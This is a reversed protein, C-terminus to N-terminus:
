AGAARRMRDRVAGWAEGEPMREMVLHTAGCGELRHLAAYLERAVGAEHNPLTEVPGACSRRGLAAATGARCLVAVGAQGWAERLGEESALTVVLGEPAYHRYRMGPARAPETPDPTPAEGRHASPDLPPAEPEGSPARLVGPGLEAELMSRTLGAGQRLIACRGKRLDVVTSELGVETAGGELVAAIRGGLTHLVHAATTPSPRGSRNASPAAVPGGFAALLKRAIPHSPVRVAVTDLGARVENPIRGSRAPLVMTLPGPWFRAALRRAHVEEGEDLEWLELAAELSAVHLILPNDAPRGKARFIGAVAESSLGDAGLGYVTETPFAVLKGESLLAAAREFSAQLTGPLLLTEQVAEAGPLAMTWASTHLRCPEERSILASFPRVIGQPHCRSALSPSARASLDRGRLPLRWSQRALSAM